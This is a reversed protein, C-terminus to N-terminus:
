APDLANLDTIRVYEAAAEHQAGRRATDVDAFHGDLVAAVDADLQGEAAMSRMLARTAAEPMAARYPRDETLATFVDAVAIIRAPLDLRDGPVRFPYGAGDMREHHLAAWRAERELGGLGHLIAHTHFAHAKIVNREDSTLAGPKELVARPVALKGLDHIMGAMRIRECLPGDLGCFSALAAAGDAVGRSHTATFRSRFDIVQCFLRGLGQLADTMGLDVGGTAEPEGGSAPTRGAGYEALLERVPRTRGVASFWFAEPGSADLFAEVARPAFLTGANSRALERLLETQGVIERRADIMGGVREALHLLHPELRAADGDRSGSAGKFIGGDEAGRGHDWARHHHRVIRAAGALPAFRSLLRFGIEAHLGPGRVDFTFEHLEQRLSLAGADHLLAALALDRLRAADLGAAAGSQLAIRAVTAHHSAVEPCVLDVARSLAEVIDLLNVSNAADM